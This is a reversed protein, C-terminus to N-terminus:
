ANEGRKRKRTPRKGTLKRGHALALMFADSLDDQKGVAAAFTLRAAHARETDDLTALVAATTEVAHKKNKRYKAGMARRDGGQRAKVDERTEGADMGTLKTSPSVFSVPIDITGSKMLQYTHFFAHIVHSLCKMRVSSFMNRGGAPQQEVVVVDPALEWIDQVRAHLSNMTYEADERMTPKAKSALGAEEHVNITEWAHVVPQAEESVGLLCYSLTKTGVDFALVRM